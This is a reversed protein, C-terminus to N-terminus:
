QPWNLNILETSLDLKKKVDGGICCLLKKLFSGGQKKVWYFLNNHIKGKNKEARKLGM